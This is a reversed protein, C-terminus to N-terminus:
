GTPNLRVALRANFRRANAARADGVGSIDVDECVLPETRARADFLRLFNRARQIDTRTVPSCSGYGCVQDVVVIGGPRVVRVLESVLKRVDYSKDVVNKLFIFGFHADPFPMNHMDGATVIEPDDSFLDLGIHRRLGVIERFFRIETLWRPGISLSPKGPDVWGRRKWRAIKLEWFSQRLLREVFSPPASTVGRLYNRLEGVDLESAYRTRAASFRGSGLDRQLTLVSSLDEDARRETWHDFDRAVEHTANEPALVSFGDLPTGSREILSPLDSLAARDVADAALLSFLERLRPHSPIQSDSAIEYQERLIDPLQSVLSTDYTLVCEDRRILQQLLEGIRIQTDTPSGATTM